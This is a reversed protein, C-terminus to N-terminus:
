LSLLIAALSGVDRPSQPLILLVSAFHAVAYSGRGVGQPPVLFVPTLLGCCPLSLPIAAFSGLDRLSQPSILFVPTLLGCRPLSLLIAAFSGLDRLSQPSILFVPALLRSRLSLITIRRSARSPFDIADDLGM